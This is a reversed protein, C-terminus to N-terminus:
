FASRKASGKQLEMFQERHMKRVRNMEKIERLLIAERKRDQEMVEGALEELFDSVDSIMGMRVWPDEAILEFRATEARTTPKDTLMM